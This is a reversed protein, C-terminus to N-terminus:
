GAVRAQAGEIAESIPMDYTRGAWAFIKKMDLSQEVQAALHNLSNERMARWSYFETVPSLGYFRRAANIFASRFDDQDFLGHLYTGFVRDNSSICGDTHSSESAVGRSVEAFPRANNLYTTEGVHIEYGSLHISPVAQGFLTKAALKGHTLTTVKQPHMTTRIPLLGLGDVVGSHEIGLPDSISAGLMQM